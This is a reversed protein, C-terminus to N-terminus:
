GDELLLGEERENAAESDGDGSLKTTKPLDMRAM